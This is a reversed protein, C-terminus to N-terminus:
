RSRTQMELWDAQIECLLARLGVTGTTIVGITFDNSTAYVQITVTANTTSFHRSCTPNRRAHYLAHPHSQRILACILISSPATRLDLEKITILRANHGHSTDLAETSRPEANLASLGCIM